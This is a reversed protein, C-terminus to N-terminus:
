LEKIMDQVFEYYAESDIDTVEETDGDILTINGEVCGHRILVVEFVGEWDSNGFPRKGSFSEGEEWLKLLVIRFWERITIKARLDHCYFRLDLAQKPPLTYSM